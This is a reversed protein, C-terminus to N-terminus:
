NEIAGKCRPCSDPLKDFPLRGQEVVGGCCRCIVKGVWDQNMSFPISIIALVGLVVKLFFTGVLFLVIAILLVLSLWANRRRALKIERRSVCYNAM